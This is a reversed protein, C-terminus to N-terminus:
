HSLTLNKDFHLEGTEAGLRAVALCDGAQLVTSGGPILTKGERQILVILVILSGKPLRIESLSKGAWKSNKDLCIESMSLNERDEFQEAALILLDGEEVVTEGNPVLTEKGRLLLAALFDPALPLEKLAKGAMRHGASVHLKVFSVDNDEQYDNFTRRVDQNRDIMDLVSSVRPLLTGQIGLSLIVICFVLNFLNYHLEIEGLVAYIAFVISAVGRLGAWSVVGIQRLGSGMPALLIGAALPRAIFTLFLMILLAPLFTEPLESPTVLLGLLFFIMMQAIGTVADFFHVLDRKDSLSANGMYIGCLYVSLYGNGGFVSPLAYALVAAAFVFITKGQEMYFDCKKLFFVAAYGILLGAAAGVLIQNALLAPVSISEGQLLSVFLVTLMYSFPDNSGSEIELLSATHDKLDLKQTKLVSFVSAADTSAIVSGILFSELWELKLAFHVFVGVLGATAVVGVTSLVVAKAAAPRAAKLNTGFGGYFMVFLLCVSCIQESIQYDDFPIGVIGNVGFCMGLAIFILLSPIPLRQAFRNLLVCIAIVTGILILYGNL